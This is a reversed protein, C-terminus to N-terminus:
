AGVIARILEIDQASVPGEFARLVGGDADLVRTQPIQRFNLGLAQFLAEPEADIIVTPATLGVKRLLDGVRTLTADAPGADQFRDWSVTVLDARTGLTEDLQVFLPLEEVCGDCWTAWHHEILPRREPALARRAADVGALRVRPAAPATQKLHQEFRARASTALRTDLDLVRQLVPRLAHTLLGLPSPM